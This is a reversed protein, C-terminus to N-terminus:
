ISEDVWPSCLKEGWVEFKVCRNIFQGLQSSYKERVACFIEATGVLDDNNNSNKKKKKLSAHQIQIEQGAKSSVLTQCTCCVYMGTSLYVAQLSCKCYKM